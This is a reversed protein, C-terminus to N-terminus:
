GHRSEWIELIRESLTMPDFPKVIIGAVGLSKFKEIEHIQAKATMFVVVTDATEPLKRLARLTAPGDMEPMMVDVVIIDPKFAGAKEVAAAGSECSEVIFSGVGELALKTVTRIDEEDEIHLVRRLPRHYM